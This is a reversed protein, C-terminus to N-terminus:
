KCTAFVSADYIKLTVHTTILIECCRDSWFRRGISVVSRQFVCLNPLCTLAHALSQCHKSQLPESRSIMECCLLHLLTLPHRQNFMPEVYARANSGLNPVHHSPRCRMAARIIGVGHALLVHLGHIWALILCGEEGSGVGIRIQTTSIHKRRKKPTAIRLSRQNFVREM